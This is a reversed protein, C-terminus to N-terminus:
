FCSIMFREEFKGLTANRFCINRVISYYERLYVGDLESDFRYGSNKRLLRDITKPTDMLQMKNTRVFPREAQPYITRSQHVNQIFEQVYKL